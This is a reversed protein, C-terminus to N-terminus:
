EQHAARGAGTTRRVCSCSVLCTSSLSQATCCTCPACCAEAHGATVQCSARVWSCHLHEILLALSHGQHCFICAAQAPRHAPLQQARSPRHSGGHEARVTRQVKSSIVQCHPLTFPSERAWGLGAWHLTQSAAARPQYFVQQAPLWTIKLTRRGNWRILEVIKRSSPDPLHTRRSLACSAM